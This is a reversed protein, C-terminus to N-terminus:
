NIRLSPLFVLIKSITGGGKVFEGGFEIFGTCQTNMKKHREGEGEWESVGPPM